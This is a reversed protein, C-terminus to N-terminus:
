GKINYRVYQILNVNLSGRSGMGHGFVFSVRFLIDNTPNVKTPERGQSQSLEFELM